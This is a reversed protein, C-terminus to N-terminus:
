SAQNKESIEDEGAFLDKTLVRPPLQVIQPPSVQFKGRMHPCAVIKAKFDGLGADRCGTDQVKIGM